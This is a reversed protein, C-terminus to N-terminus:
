GVANCSSVNAFHGLPKAEHKCLSAGMQWAICDVSIDVKLVPSGNNLKTPVRGHPLPFNALQMVANHLSFTANSPEGIVQLHLTLSSSKVIAFVLLLLQLNGAPM